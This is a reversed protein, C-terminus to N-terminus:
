PQLNRIGTLSLDSPQLLEQTNLAALANELTEWRQNVISTHLYYSRLPLSSAVQIVPTIGDLQIKPLKGVWSSLLTSILPSLLEEETIRPYAALEYHSNWELVVRYRGGQQRAPVLVPHHHEARNWYVFSQKLSRSSEWLGYSCQSIGM